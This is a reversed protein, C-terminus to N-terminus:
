QRRLRLRALSNKRRKKRRRGDDAIFFALMKGRRTAALTAAAEDDVPTCTGGRDGARLPLRLQGHSHQQSSLLFFFSSALFTESPPLTFCLPAPLLSLSLSVSNRSVEVVVLAEDAAREEGAASSILSISAAVSVCVRM